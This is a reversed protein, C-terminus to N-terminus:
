RIFDSKRLQVHESVCNILQNSTSFNSDRLKDFYIYLLTKVGLDELNRIVPVFDSDCAILIIKSVDKQRIPVNMLDMTLLTDVGKQHYTAKGGEVIKQCRGERITIIENGSLKGIFYDYNERRHREDDNPKSSQFPPATYYYVHKLELNQKGALRKSLKIIDFKLYKGRGFYKSLKSLFGADIFVLTKKM